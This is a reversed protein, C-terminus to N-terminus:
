PTGLDPETDDLLYALGALEATRRVRASAAVVRVGAMRRAQVLVHLSCSDIFTVGSLDLAVPARAAATRVRALVEPAAALDLEGEVVM